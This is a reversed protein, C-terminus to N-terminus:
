PIAMDICGIEILVMCHNSLHDAGPFSFLEIEDRFDFGFVEIRLANEFYDGAKEILELSGIEVEEEDV